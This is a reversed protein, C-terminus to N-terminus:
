EAAALGYQKVGGCMEIANAVMAATDYGCEAYLEDQTGHEIYKDPIGLRKVQAAYGNDAMFEVVASGM